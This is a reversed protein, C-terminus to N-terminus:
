EEKGDEDDDESESVEQPEGAMTTLAMTLYDVQDAADGVGLLKM